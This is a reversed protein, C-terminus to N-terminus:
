SYLKPFYESINSGALVRDVSFDVTVSVAVGRRLEEPFDEIGGLVSPMLFRFYDGMETTGDYGVPYDEGACSGEVGHYIYFGKNKPINADSFRGRRMFEKLLSEFVEERSSRKSWASASYLDVEFGGNKDKPYNTFGASEEWLFENMRDLFDEAKDMMLLQQPLDGFCNNVMMALRGNKDMAFWTYITGFGPMWDKNLDGM